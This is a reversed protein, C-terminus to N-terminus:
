GGMIFLYPVVAVNGEAVWNLFLVVQITEYNWKVLELMQFKKHGSLTLKINISQPSIAQHRPSSPAGSPKYRPILQNNHISLYTKVHVMVLWPYVPIMVLTCMVVCSLNMHWFCLYDNFDNNKWHIINIHLTWIFWLLTYGTHAVPSHTHHAPSRNDSTM